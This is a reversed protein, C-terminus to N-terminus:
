HKRRQRIKELYERGVIGAEIDSIAQVCPVANNRRQQLSLLGKEENEKRQRHIERMRESAILVLDFRNGVMIAAKDFDNM